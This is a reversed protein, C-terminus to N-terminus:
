NVRYMKTKREMEFTNATVVIEYYTDTTNTIKVTLITGKPLDVDKKHLKFFPKKLTYTCDDIWEVKLTMKEKKGDIYEIQKNGKRIIIFRPNDGNKMYFTGEKYDQCTANQALTTSSIALLLSFIFLKM